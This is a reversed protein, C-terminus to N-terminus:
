GTANSEDTLKHACVRHTSLVFRADIIHPEPLWFLRAEQCNGDESNVVLNGIPYANPLRDETGLTFLRVASIELRRCLQDRVMGITDQSSLELKTSDGAMGSVIVRVSRVPTLAQATSLLASLEAETLKGDMGSVMTAVTEAQCARDLGHFWEAASEAPSDASSDPASDASSDAAPKSHARGMRCCEETVVEAVEVLPAECMGFLCVFWWSAHSDGGKHIFLM